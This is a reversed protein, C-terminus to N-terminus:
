VLLSILDELADGMEIRIDMYLNPDHSCERMVNSHNWIRDRPQQDQTALARNLASQASIVSAHTDGLVGKADFITQNLLYLLENDEFGDRYATVRLTPLFSEGYAVFLTGEGLGGYGMGGTRSDAFNWYFAWHLFGKINYKFFTWGRLRAMILPEQFEADQSPFGDQTSYSWFTKGNDEIFQQIEPTFTDYCGIWIDLDEMMPSYNELPEILTASTSINSVDRVAGYVINYAEMIKPDSHHEDSHRCYTNEEWTQGGPTYKSSLHLSANGYFWRIATIYDDKSGNIIAEPNEKCNVGPFWNLKVISLGKNFMAGVKQDFETWDISIGDYLNDWDVTISPNAIYSPDARYEVFLDRLEDNIVNGYGIDITTDVTRDLPITANWIKLKIRFELSHYAYNKSIWSLFQIRCYTYYTGPSADSPVDVRLWMPYNRYESTTIPEWPYLIDAVQGDYTEVYGVHGITLNIAQTESEDEKIWLEDDRSIDESGYEYNRFTQVIDAYNSFVIQVLEHDNKLAHIEIEPNIKANKGNFSYYKSVRDYSNALWLVGHDDMRSLVQPVTQDNFAINIGIPVGVSLLSCFILVISIPKRVKSRVNKGKQTPYNIINQKKRWLITFIICLIICLGPIVLSLLYYNGTAIGQSDLPFLYPFLVSLGEEFEWFEYLPDEWFIFMAVIWFLVSIIVGAHQYQEFINKSYIITWLLILMPASISFLFAFDWSLISTNWFLGLSVHPILFILLCSLLASGPKLHYKKWLFVLIFGLIGAILTPEMWSRFLGHRTTIQGTLIHTFIYLGLLCFFAIFVRFVPLRSKKVIDKNSSEWEPLRFLCPLLESNLGIISSAIFIWYIVWLPQSIVIFQAIAFIFFGSTLAFGLKMNIEQNTKVLDLIEIILLFIIFCFIIPFWYAFYYNLEQLTDFAWNWLSIPITNNLLSGLQISFFILLIGWVASKIARISNPYRKRVFHHVLFVLLLTIIFGIVATLTYKESIGISRQLPKGWAFYLWFWTLLLSLTFSLRVLSISLAYENRKEMSPDIITKNQQKNLGNERVNENNKVDM